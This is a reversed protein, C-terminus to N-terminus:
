LGHPRVSGQRRLRERIESPLFAKTLSQAVITATKKAAKVPQSAIGRTGLGPNDKDRLDKLYSQVLQTLTDRALPRAHAGPAPDKDPEVELPLPKCQPPTGGTLLFLYSRRVGVHYILVM